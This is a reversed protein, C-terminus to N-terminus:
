VEEEETMFIFLDQLSVASIEIGAEKMERLEEEDPRDFLTCAVTPGLERRQIVQKGEVFAAITDKHGTVTVGRDRFAEAPENVVLEGRDLILVHDFLYDMESVLHTSLIILKPDREQEEVLLQYFRERGPADLGQYAEDFILVESQSALGLCITFASQKGTSLSHIAKDLPVGFGKLLSLAREEDFRPLYRGYLKVYDTVKDTEDSYDRQYVFQIERMLAQQEFPDEGKYRYTGEQKPLFSALISLLTTKGAGNRGILGYTRGKEMAFSIDQLASEKKFRHTLGEVEIM